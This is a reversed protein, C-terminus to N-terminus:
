ARRFNGLVPCFMSFQPFVKSSVTKRCFHDELICAQEMGIFHFPLNPTHKFLIRITCNVNCSAAVSRKKSCTKDATPCINRNESVASFFLAEKIDIISGKGM